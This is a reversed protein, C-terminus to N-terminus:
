SRFEWTVHYTVPGPVWRGQADRVLDPKATGKASYLYHSVDGYFEEARLMAEAEAEALPGTTTFTLTRMPTM